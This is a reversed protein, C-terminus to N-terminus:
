RELTDPLRKLWSIQAQWYEFGEGDVALDAVQVGGYGRDLTRIHKITATKGDRTSWGPCNIMVRDGVLLQEDKSSSVTAPTPSPHLEVQNEQSESKTITPDDLVEENGFLKLNLLDDPDDSDNRLMPKLDDSLDDHPDDSLDDTTMSDDLTPTTDWDTRLRLGCIMRRQGDRKFEVDGWGLTQQCLEILDPRFNNIGKGKLGSVRCYHSYSGFLTSSEPIYNAEAWEHRDGGIQTKATPDHIVWENVWAAISDTRIKSQWLTSCVEDKGIRRLVRTIENNPISLLYNTFASLEPEFEAELDRVKDVAPKYDFALMIIRRTLWSGGDAHFIPANSTVVAMGPFRFSLGDKYLRRGNLSDQGTLRKFNSLSGTVKDQDPLIVLRKGILRAVEHKDELDQLSGNWCNHSGIVAELLRTLTSKGTGGVGILHLFKHLDARGRLVAAAFCLLIEQNQQNGGTAEDLWTKIKTWDTAVVSYSRPLSWTLRHGPAHDHLQGTTLELVGNTFPLMESTSRENWERELLQRRMKAVINTVYSASGYGVIGRSELIKDVVSEIYQDSVLTWVGDRELGYSMWGKHQDSWLLQDRYDEIIERGVVDAPPIKKTKPDEPQQFQRELGQRWEEFTPADEVLKRFEEEGYQAIFDDMGVKGKPDKPLLIVKVVAGEARILRGKTDLAGQVSPNDMIDSDFCLYVTRGVTCFEKLRPKLRGLKQGTTVGPISITAFGISLGAGAKKAGETIVIPKSVDTLVDLWYDPIGTDLFLPESPYESASFYKQFDPSGDRKVKPQGNEQRQVPTDPKFQVGDYLVEGTEVDVGVVRWGSGHEWHKWRKKNNRNLLKDIEAPDKVTKVNLEVIRPAVGSDIVWENWHAQCIYSPPADTTHIVVM